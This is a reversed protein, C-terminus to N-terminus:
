RSMVAPAYAYSKQDRVVRGFPREPDHEFILLWGEAEARGLLTRKTELTVMPELDYGMIWPLPIHASTPILDALYCATEGGHEILISQHHPV